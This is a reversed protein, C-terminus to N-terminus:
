RSSRGYPHSATASKLDSRVSSQSKFQGGSKGSRGSTAPVAVPAMAAVLKATEVEDQRSASSITASAEDWDERVSKVLELLNDCCANLEKVKTECDTPNAAIAATAKELQAQNHQELSLDLKTRLYDPVVEHHFVPVRGETIKELHKDPESRIELPLVVLNQLPPTKDSKLQKVLTSVHGSLATFNDLISPWNHNEHELKVLLARLSQKLDGVRGALSSLAVDVGRGDQAQM